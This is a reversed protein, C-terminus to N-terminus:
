QLPRLSKQWIFKYPHHWSGNIKFVFGILVYIVIFIIMTMFIWRKYQRKEKVLMGFYVFVFVIQYYGLRAMFEFFYGLSTLMVGIFYNVRVSTVIYLDRNEKQCLDNFFLIKNTSSFLPSYLFLSVIFIMLLAVNRLGINVSVNAFYTSYFVFESSFLSLLTPFTIILLVFCFVIFRKQRKNLEKWILLDPILCLVGMIASKHFIVAAFAICMFFKIYSRKELFKTGWFVIAVACFQRMINLSEFYYFSYFSFVTISFSIKERLEWFRMIIFGYIIISFIVFLLTPNNYIKLIWKCIMLFGKDKIYKDGYKINFFAKYYTHTDRGVSYNRFGAVFSLIVIIVITVYKNNSKEALISFLFIIISLLAYFMQSAFTIEPNLVM